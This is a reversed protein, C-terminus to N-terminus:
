WRQEALRYLPYDPNDEYYPDEEFQSDTRLESAIIFSDGIAWGKAAVFKVLSLRDRFDPEFKTASNTLVLIDHIRYQSIWPGYNQLFGSLKVQAEWNVREISTAVLPSSGEPSLESAVEIYDSPYIDDLGFQRVDADSKDEFRTTDNTQITLGLLTVTGNDVDVRDVRAEIEIRSSPQLDVSTAIM